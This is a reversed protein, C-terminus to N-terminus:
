LPVCFLGPFDYKRFFLWIYACLVVNHSCKVGPPSSGRKRKTELYLQEYYTDCPHDWTSEGTEFNFYYIEGDACAKCPRWDSGLPAKLGEEAIWLLDRENDLDMGLWKAYDMIETETPM